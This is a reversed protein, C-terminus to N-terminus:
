GGRSARAQLAYALERAREAAISIEGIDRLLAARRAADPAEQLREIETSVFSTYTIIIALANNLDHGLDGGVPDPM